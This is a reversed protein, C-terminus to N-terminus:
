YNVMKTIFDNDILKKAKKWNFKNTGKECIQEREYELLYMISQFVRPMKLVKFKKLKFLSKTWEEKEKFMKAIFHIRTDRMYIDKIEDDVIDERMSIVDEITRDEEELLKLHENDMYEKDTVMIKLKRNRDKM